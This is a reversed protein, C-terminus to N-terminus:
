PVYRRAYGADNYLGERYRDECPGACLVDSPPVAIGAIRAFLLALVHM